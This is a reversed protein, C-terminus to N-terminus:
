EKKLKGLVDKQLAEAREKLQKEQKELNKLRLEVVDKRQSLEGQLQKADTGVMINGIIRFAEPAKALEKVASELEFLQAQFQQRQVLLAQMNQEIMQLKSISEQAEKPIEAM